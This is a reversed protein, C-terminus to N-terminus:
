IQKAVGGVRDTLIQSNEFNACSLVFTRVHEPFESSIEDFDTPIVVFNVCSQLCTWSFNDWCISSNAYNRDLTLSACFYAFNNTSGLFDQLIFVLIWECSFWSQYLRSRTKRLKECIFTSPLTTCLRGRYPRSPAKQLKKSIFTSQVTRCQIENTTDLPM